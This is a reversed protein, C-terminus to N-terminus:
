QMDALLLLEVVVAVAPASRTTVEVVVVALL